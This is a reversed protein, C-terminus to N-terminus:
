TVPINLRIKMAAESVEFRKALEKIERVGQASLLRILHYPMLIDAALKNAEVEQQTSLGGRYFTDETIGDRIQERHLLFHAIEHAVTFRKRAYGERSNVGISYGSTGGHDPDPFLKGSINTPLSSIEWIKLGLDGAIGSINVPANQQFARIYRRAEDMKQLHSLGTIADAIATSM